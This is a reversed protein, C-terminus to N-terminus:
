VDLAPAGTLTQRRILCFSGRAARAAPLAMLEERGYSEEWLRMFDRERFPLEDMKWRCVQEWGGLLRVVFATVPELEPERWAGKQRVAELLAGWEARAQLKVGEEGSGDQEDLAKQMLAFPPMARYPVQDAGCRRILTLAAAQVRAAKYDKLLFLWMRATEPVLTAAFNGALGNLAALKEQTERAAEADEQARNEPAAAGRARNEQRAGERMSEQLSHNRM